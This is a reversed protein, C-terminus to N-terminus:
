PYIKYVNINKERVPRPNNGAYFAKERDCEESEYFSGYKNYSLSFTLFMGLVHLLNYTQIWVVKLSPRDCPRTVTLSIVKVLYDMIM